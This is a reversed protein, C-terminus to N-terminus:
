QMTRSLQLDGLTKFTIGLNLSRNVIAGSSFDEKYELRALFCDCDFGVGVSRSETWSDKIDYRWHGFVFAGNDFRWGNFEVFDYDNLWGHRPDQRVRVYGLSADLKDFLKAQLLAIQDRPRLTLPDFRGQWSFRTGNTMDLALGAVLDSRKRELGSKSGAFSNRGLLHYSQGLTASLHGFADLYLNYTLGANLRVGGEHRDLGPYRDHLFLTSSSFRAAVSDMNGTKDELRENTTAIVSKPTM